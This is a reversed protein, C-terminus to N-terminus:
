GGDRFMLINLFEFSMVGRSETRKYNEFSALFMYNSSKVHLLGADICSRLICNSTEVLGGWIMSRKGLLMALHWDSNSEWVVLMVPHSADWDLLGEYFQKYM